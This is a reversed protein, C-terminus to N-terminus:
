KGEAQRAEAEYPNDSYGYKMQYWIYKCAFKIYGDRKWQAKHCDEHKQWTPTVKTEPETFFTTQGLTVAWPAKGFMLPIKSNYINM